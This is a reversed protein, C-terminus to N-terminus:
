RKDSLLEVLLHHTDVLVKSTTTAPPLLKLNVEALILTQILLRCQLQEVKFPYNM